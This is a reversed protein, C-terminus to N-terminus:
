KAVSVIFSESEEPNSHLLHIQKVLLTLLLWIEPMTLCMVYSSIIIKNWERKAGTESKLLQCKKEFFPQFRSNM